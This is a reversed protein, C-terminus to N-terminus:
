RVFCAAWHGPAKEELPTAGASTRSSRAAPRSAADRHPDIPNPIEGQLVIRQRGSCRRIQFRCAPCCRRRTPIGRRRTCPTPIPSSSWSAPTSSPSAIPSTAFSSLDHAIFLYAIGFERQLDQLLNVIQARVSVDLASVPEDAVIFDPQLALAQAIGIRQRQGESFPTRIVTPPTGRAGAASSCPSSRTLPPPRRSPGVTCSSRSPSSNSCPCGRNLSAYPDQFVLRMRQRLRRLEEGSTTTIDQGRFM